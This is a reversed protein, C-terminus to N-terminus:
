FQRDRWLNWETWRPDEHSPDRDKGLGLEPAHAHFLDHAVVWNVLFYLPWEYGREGASTAFEIRSLTPNCGVTHVEGCYRWGPTGVFELSRTVPAVDRHFANVISTIQATAEGQLEHPDTVVTFPAPKEPWTRRKADHHNCGALLVLALVLPRM